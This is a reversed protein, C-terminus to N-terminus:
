NLEVHFAGGAGGQSWTGNIKRQSTSGLEEIAGEVQYGDALSFSVTWDSPHLQVDQLAQRKGNEIVYGTVSQDRQLEMVLLIRSNAGDVVRQGSWSGNLPYGEQAPALSGLCLLLTALLTNRLTRARTHRYTM